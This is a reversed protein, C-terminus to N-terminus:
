EAWTGDPAARNQEMVKQFNEWDPDDAFMGAFQGWAHRNPEVEVELPVIRGTLLLAELDAKAQALAKEETEGEVVIEPWQRVRAIFKQDKQILLVDYTM